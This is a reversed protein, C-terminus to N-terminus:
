LTYMCHVKPDRLQKRIKACSVDIEEKSMGLHKSYLYNLFGELFEDVMM